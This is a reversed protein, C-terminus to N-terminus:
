IADGTTFLLAGTTADIFTMLNEHQRPTEAPGVIANVWFCMWAPVQDYLLNGGTDTLDTDTLLGSRCVLSAPDSAGPQALATARARLGTVRIDPHARLPEVLITGDRLLVPSSLPRGDDRAIAALMGTDPTVAPSESDPSMAQSARASAVARPPIDIRDAGCGALLVVVLGGAALVRRM